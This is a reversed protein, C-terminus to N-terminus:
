EDVDDGEAIRLTTCPWPDGCEYCEDVHLTGGSAPVDSQYRRHLERILHLRRHAEDLTHVLNAMRGAYTRDEPGREAIFDESLYPIEANPGAGSM